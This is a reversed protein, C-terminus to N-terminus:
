LLLITVRSSKAEKKKYLKQIESKNFLPHVAEAKERSYDYEKQIIEVDAAAPDTSGALNRFDFTTASSGNYM